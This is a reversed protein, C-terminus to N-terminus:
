AAVKRTDLWRNFAMHVRAPNFLSAGLSQAESRWAAHCAQGVPYGEKLLPFSVVSVASERRCACCERESM